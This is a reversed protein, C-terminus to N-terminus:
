NERSERPSGQRGAGLNWTANSTKLKYIFIYIFVDRRGRTYLLPILNPSPHGQKETTRFENSQRLSSSPMTRTIIRRHASSM